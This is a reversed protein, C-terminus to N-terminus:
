TESLLPKSMVLADEGDAYYYRIKRDIDFGLKKYLEIAAVNSVRVELFLTECNYDMLGRMVRKMLASAIGIRRFNPLVAISILHGRKSGGFLRSGFRQEIRCMAYGVVKGEKEAVLFTKPFRKFIGMFFSDPYNEPLCMRNIEIVKNLDGPQFGRITFTTQM